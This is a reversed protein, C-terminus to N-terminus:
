FSVEMRMRVGHKSSVQDILSGSNLRRVYEVRLMKFINGIGIGAEMFPENLPKKLAKPLALVSQHDGLLMGYYAKFSATERLNLKKVLPLKNFIVGGGNMSLYANSYLDSAFSVQNLLSYNYRAYGLSQSGRPNHLLPFPVKGAIYGADVLLRLYGNGINFRNKVSAQFHAYPETQKEVTTAGVEATLHIVPKQNGYYFRSFFGDDYDQGFSFRTDFLLGYQQFSNIVKGEGSRTFPVHETGQVKSAFPRALIGIDGKLQHSLSLSLEERRILDPNPVETFNSIPNGDGQSFPNERVFEIYKNRSLSFYDDYYRATLITRRDTPLLVNINGGFKFEKDRTGYATYGGVSFRKSLKESTRLALSLRHGEIQNRRYLDYIPGIDVLGTNFYGTLGMAGFKDVTKVLFNNQLTAIGERAQIDLSDMTPDSINAVKSVLYPAELTTKRLALMDPTKPGSVILSKRVTYGKQKDSNKKKRIVLNMSADQRAYYWGEPFKQYTVSLEMDEVFNINATNPLRADIRTLAFSGDEVWFDGKFTPNQENKPYFSFKYHTTTDVETSDTIYVNYYLLARKSLPGPFGRGLIDVQNDYFNVEPSFKKLVITEIQDELTPLIGQSRTEIISDAGNIRERAEEALFVPMMVSSDPANLFANQSNRFVRRDKISADLNTLYVSTRIHAQHDPQPRKDPDNKHKAALVKKFMRIDYSYEPTISVAELTLDEPAMDIRLDPQDKHMLVEQQAYGLYRFILTATDADTKITFKGLDDSFCGQSVNKVRINVFSLPAGSSKDYVIGSFKQAPLNTMMAITLFLLVLTHRCAIEQQPSALM